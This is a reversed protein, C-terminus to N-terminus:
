LTVFSPNLAFLQHQHKLKYGGEATSPWVAPTSKWQKRRAFTLCAKPMPSSASPHLYLIKSATTMSMLQNRVEDVPHLVELAETLESHRGGANM